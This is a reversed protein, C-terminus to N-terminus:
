GDMDIGFLVMKEGLNLLFKKGMRTFLKKKKRDIALEQPAVDITIGSPKYDMLYGMRSILKVKRRDMKM